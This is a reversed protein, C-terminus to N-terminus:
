LKPITSYSGPREVHEAFGDTDVAYVYGLENELTEIRQLLKKYKTQFFKMNGKRKIEV